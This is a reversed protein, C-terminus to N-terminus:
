YFWSRKISPTKDNLNELMIEKLPKGCWDCFGKEKLINEWNKKKM